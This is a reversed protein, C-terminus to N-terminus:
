KIKRAYRSAIDVIVKLINETIKEMVTVLSVNIVHIMNIYNFNVKMWKGTKQLFNTYYIKM